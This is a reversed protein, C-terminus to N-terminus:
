EDGFNVSGGTELRHTEQGQIIPSPDEDADDVDETALIGSCLAGSYIVDAISINLNALRKLRLVVEAFTPRLSAERTVAEEVLRRALDPLGDTSPRLEDHYIKYLLQADHLGAESYPQRGTYVEAVVIGFSYVDATESYRENNLVEPAMYVPTGIATMTRTTTKITSVGFDAVKCVWKSNVLLNQPKIDRHILKKSHLYKIGMAADILLKTRIEWSLNRGKRLIVDKVSGRQMLESVLYLRGENYAIGEFQVVNSHRLAHMLRIEVLFDQAAKDGLHQVELTLEKLAVDRVEGDKMHWHASSVIGSAGNGIRQLLELDGWPIRMIDPDNLLAELSTANMIDDSIELDEYVNVETRRLHLFIALLAVSPILCVLVAVAVSLLLIVTGWAQNNQSPAQTAPEVCTDYSAGEQVEMGDECGNVDIQCTLGGESEQSGTLWITCTSNTKGQLSINAFTTSGTAELLRQTGPVPNKVWCEDGAWSFTVLFEESSLIAGTVHTGFDDTLGVELSFPGANLARNVPCSSTNSYTLTSPATAYGQSTGYGDSTPSLKITCNWCSNSAQEADDVSTFAVTSGAWMSVNDEFNAHLLLRPATNDAIFVAGGYKQAENTFFSCSSCEMLQGEMNPFYMAGGYYATNNVFSCGSFVRNDLHRAGEESSLASAWEYQLAVAIGGGESAENNEFHCDRVTYQATTAPLTFLMGGGAIASNAIFQCAEVRVVFKNFFLGGGDGQSVSNGEFKCLRLSSTGTGSIHVAGGQGVATNDIFDCFKGEIAITAAIAGGHFTARNRVFASHELLLQEASSFIGGGSLKQAENELFSSGAVDVTQFGNAYIAGGREVGINKVFSCNTVSVQNNSSLGLAGGRWAVNDMFQSSKLDAYAFNETAVAGGESVSLPSMYHKRFSSDEVFLTTEDTAFVAGGRTSASNESFSCNVINADSHQSIMAGGGAVAFNGDFRSHAVSWWVSDSSFLAGGNTRARNNSFRTSVVDARSRVTLAIGGGSGSALNNEFLSGEVHLHSHDQCFVGGGNTRCLNELFRSRNFSATATDQLFFGGGFSRASNEKVTAEVFVASSDDALLVAGGSAHAHCFEIYSNFFIMSTTGYLAMAGGSNATCGYHTLGHAIGSVNGVFLISGASSNSYSFLFRLDVLAVLADAVAIDAGGIHTATNSFFDSNHMVCSGGEIFVAGAPSTCGSFITDEVTLDAAQSYIAVGATGVLDVFTSNVVVASGTAVLSLAGDGGAGSFHCSDILCTDLQGSLMVMRYSDEASSGESTLTFNCKSASFAVVQANVVFGDFHCDDFFAERSAKGGNLGVSIESVDASVFSSETVFLSTSFLSPASASGAAKTVTVGTLTCSGQSSHVLFDRYNGNFTSDQVDLSGQDIVIVAANSTGSFSSNRITLALSEFGIAGGIFFAESASTQTATVNTLAFVSGDKGRLVSVVSLTTFESSHVQVASASTVVVFKFLSDAVMWDTLLLQCGDCRLLVAEAAELGAVKWGRADVTARTSAFISVLGNSGAFRSEICTWNNLTVHGDETTVKLYQMVDYVTVNSIQVDSLIFSQGADVVGLNGVGATGSINLGVCDVNSGHLGEIFASQPCNAVGISRLTADSGRLSLLVSRQSAMETFSVDIMMITSNTARVVQLLSSNSNKDVVTFTINAITFTDSNSVQLTVISTNEDAVVVTGEAEGSGILTLTRGTSQLAANGEGEYMGATIFISAALTSPVPAQISECEDTDDCAYITLTANAADASADLLQAAADLGAQITECPCEQMGCIPANENGTIQILCHLKGTCTQDVVLNWESGEPRRLPWTSLQLCSGLAIFSAWM